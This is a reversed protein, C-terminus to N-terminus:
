QAYQMDPVRYGRRQYAMLRPANPKNLKIVMEPGHEGVMALTPKTVIGGKKFASALAGAAGAGLGTVKDWTTPIRAAAIANSASAPTAGVVTGFANSRLANLSNSQNLAQGQQQRIDARAAARDQRQTESINTMRNTAATDAYSGRRFQADQNSQNIQQRNQAMAQARQVSAADGSQALGIGTDTIYRENAQNANSTAQETAARNSGLYQANQTETNGLQEAARMRRTSIDQEGAMRALEAAQAAALRRTGQAM